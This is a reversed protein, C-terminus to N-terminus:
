LRNNKCIKREETKAIDVRDIKGTLEVTQGSELKIIMPSYEGGKKFEIETGEIQFESQKLQWIIYNVSKIIVDTLKNTLAIFKPTSTYIYNRNIKLKEAIIEKILKSIEESEIQKIKIGRTQVKEFFTDIVDHMFSGTDISKIKFEGEEKLKLGYKLHFSFPCKRYQELKSISTEITKGYLKKLNKEKIKEPLNTYNLGDLARKLKDEWQKNKEYWNFTEVWIDDLEKGEEKERLKSLLENFTSHANSFSYKKEILDNLEHLTPFVKKLRSILISPRKATGEKDSSVYSIYLKEESTCFAKYVNFQEEYLNELTDKALFLGNQKLIARDENNLFGEEMKGNLFSGDNVGIMFIAKVKHSRSREIDGVIIQDMYMPIEGIGEKQMAIKFLDRYKEFSMKENEFVLVMEDLVKIVIQFAQWLEENGGTYIKQKEQKQEIKELLGENIWFEYLEECFKRCTKTGQLKEKLKILPLVVKKRLENIYDLKEEEYKWDENYWKSGKIGWKKCYNDLMYIDTEAMGIFGSKIYNFMAEYSWNKVFIDLLSLVYKIIPNQGLDRKEDMFVPIEYENFIAKISSSYPKLDKTIIAIDKYKYNNERVLYVINKAVTEIESYPNECLSISINKVEKDYKDYPNRYLNKELHLLEESKYRYAKNLFIPNEIKCKNKKALNQLEEATQKNYYFIDSEPNSDNELSDACITVTVMRAKNLLKEIISYEQRTFGAFEDIYILCNNFMQSKDLREALLTLKDNEDICNESIRKNYETYILNLDQLKSKLYTSKVININKQLDSETINHKKFETITNSLLDVDGDSNKLFVLNKRQELLIDYLLMARGTLSLSIETAGYTENFVRYAMRNFTLVETNLSSEEGTLSLLKKEATFSFQDPTIIYIKEETNMKNKIEHFIYESKGTGSRGYILRLSM